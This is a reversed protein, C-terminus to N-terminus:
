AKKVIQNVLEKFEKTTGKKFKNCATRAYVFKINDFLDKRELYDQLYYTISDRSELRKPFPISDFNKINLPIRKEGRLKNSFPYFNGFGIEIINVPFSSFNRVEISLSNESIIGDKQEYFVTANMPIVKIKVM